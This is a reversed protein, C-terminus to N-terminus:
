QITRIEGGDPMDLVLCNCFETYAVASDIAIIGDGRFPEFSQRWDERNKQPWEKREQNIHSWGWSCHWHGVVVTKDPVRGYKRCMDMGNLWRAQYWAEVPADRWNPDFAFVRNQMYHMPLNDKVLVPIWGHVFIYDGVEACDVTNEGIFELVPMMDTIVKRQNAWGNILDVRNLETFQAVTDLTGNTIHHGSVGNGGAAENVCDFLLDEHNGCIYILRHEKHMEQVFQFCKVADPGRDFLDGCIVVIHSKDARNFGNAELARMMPEFYSHIDSLVFLKM